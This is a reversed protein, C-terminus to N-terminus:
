VLKKIYEYVEDITKNFDNFNVNFWTVNMQNNFWTYQRKAYKRSNQKIKELCVDLTEKNEFYPFLEKYAIPTNVAKTRINSDYIQKAEELLGETVMVDVRKNIRDYLVKRDTTLGIFISDYILKDTKEKQSFPLNTSVCYNLARILRKRNNIHIKTDKDYKLLENYIEENSLNDYNNKTPEDSFKYDYLASKIYLGTGGVLIPTKNKNLIEEIKSRADKQYDYVTYDEKIDKIDFLHHKINQKEEETVKATGINLNKYVQTSDANIIEGNLKKALEVSLKTKGVATPGLIVIVM